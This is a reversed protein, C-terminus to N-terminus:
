NTRPRHALRHLLPTQSSALCAVENGCSPCFSFLLRFVSFFLLLLHGGGGWGRQKGETAKGSGSELSAEDKYNLNIEEM